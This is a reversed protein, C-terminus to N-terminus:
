FLVLKENSFLNKSFDYACFKSRGFLTIVDTKEDSRKRKQAPERRTEPSRPLKERHVAVQVCFFAVSKSCCYLLLM